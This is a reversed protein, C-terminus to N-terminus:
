WGGFGRQGPVCMTKLKEKDTEKGYLAFKGKGWVAIGVWSADAGHFNDDWSANKSHSTVFNPDWSTNWPRDKENVYPGVAETVIPQPVHTHIELLIRGQGGNARDRELVGKIQGSFDFLGDKNPKASGLDWYSHTYDNVNITVIGAFEPAGATSKTGSAEYVRKTSVVTAEWIDNIYKQVDTNEYIMQYYTYCNAYGSGDSVSADYPNVYGTLEWSTETNYGILYREEATRITIENSTSTERTSTERPTTERHGYVPVKRSVELMGLMALTFRDSEDEKVRGVGGALYLWAHHQGM